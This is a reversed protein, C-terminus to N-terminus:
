RICGRAAKAWVMVFLGTCRLYCIQIVFLKEHALCINRRDADCRQFSGSCLSRSRYILLLLLSTFLLWKSAHSLFRTLPLLPSILCVQRVGGGRRSRWRWCWDDAALSLLLDEWYSPMSLPPFSSLISLYFHVWQVPPHLIVNSNQEVINSKVCLGVIFEYSVFRSNSILELQTLLKDSRMSVTICTCNQKTCCCYQVPVCWLLYFGQIHSLLMKSKSFHGHSHQVIPNDHM